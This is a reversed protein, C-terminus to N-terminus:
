QDQIRTYLISRSRKGRVELAGMTRLCYTMKQALWVPHGTAKALDTSTFPEPLGAPILALMDQPTEFLQQDVVQLLRREHTGWGKRRWNRTKDPRRIEEEEIFVVELSFNTHAPLGAISVLEEFLHEAAGHKPSRRRGLVRRGKRTQRVIWRDRAIPYVLRVPHHELLRRLKSKISFLNRTQVEIMLNGRVIDVTFGDVPVEILDGPQAYWQKLAAHLSKENLTGISNPVDNRRGLWAQGIAM